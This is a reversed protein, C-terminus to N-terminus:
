WCFFFFFPHRRTVDSDGTSGKRRRREGTGSIPSITSAGIPQQCGTLILENLEEDTMERQFRHPISRRDSDNSGQNTINHPPFASSVDALWIDAPYYLDEWEDDDDDDDGNDDFHIKRSNPAPDGDTEALNRSREEGGVAEARDDVAAAEDTWDDGDDTQEAENRTFTDREDSTVAEDAIDERAGTPEVEGRPREDFEFDDFGDDTELDLECPPEQLSARRQRVEKIADWILGLLMLLAYYGVCLMLTGLCYCTYFHDKLFEQSTSLEEEIRITGGVVEVRANNNLEVIKVTLYQQLAM